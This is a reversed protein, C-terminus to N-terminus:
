EKKKIQASVKAYLSFVTTRLIETENQPCRDVIFYHYWYRRLIAITCVAVKIKGFYPM